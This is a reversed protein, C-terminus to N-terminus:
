TAVFQICNHFPQLRSYMIIIMMCLMIISCMVGNVRRNVM